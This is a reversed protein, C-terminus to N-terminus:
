GVVSFVATSAVAVWVCMSSHASIGRGSRMKAERSGVKEAGPQVEKSTVVPL